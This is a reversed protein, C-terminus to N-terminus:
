IYFDARARCAPASEREVSELMVAEWEDTTLGSDIRAYKLSRMLREAHLRLNFVDGDFTAHRHRLCVDGTRFGRDKRDIRLEDSDVWEGNLNPWTNPCRGRGSRTEPAGPRWLSVASFPPPLGAPSRRGAVRGAGAGTPPPIRDRTSYLPAPM